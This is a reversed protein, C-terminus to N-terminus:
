KIDYKERSSIVISYFFPITNESDLTDSLSDFTALLCAVENVIKEIHNINICNIGSSIYSNKQGIINNRNKNQTSELIEHILFKDKLKVGDKTKPLLFTPKHRTILQKSKDAHIIEYNIFENLLTDFDKKIGNIDMIKRIDKYTCDKRMYIFHIIPLVEFNGLLYNVITNDAKYPEALLRKLYAIRITEVDEKLKNIETSFSDFIKQQVPKILVEFIDSPLIDKLYYFFLIKPEFAFSKCLENLTEIRAIKRGTEIDRYYSESIKVKYNILYDNINEFGRTIRETYLFKGMNTRVM